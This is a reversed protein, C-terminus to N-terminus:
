GKILSFGSIDAANELLEELSPPIIGFDILNYLAILSV